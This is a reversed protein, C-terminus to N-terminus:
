GKGWKTQLQLFSALRLRGMELDGAPLEKIRPVPGRFSTLSKFNEREQQDEIWDALDPIDTDSLLA